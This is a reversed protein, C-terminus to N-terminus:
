HPLLDSGDEPETVLIKSAARIGLTVPAAGEPHLTIADAAEDRAGVSLRTGPRLRHRDLFQLFGPDQDLVRAVSVRRGAECSALDRHEVEAITGTRTPIPDGHPDTRPHKLLRDIRDLVRDSVAHELAEAEEHVESWDLGLVRVLFTEVIRHRRLVHLALRRGAPTLRTGDRPAYEVLGSEALAKVMTTASGPTVGVATALRGMAVLEASTKQEELYLHKLYDEVASSHM